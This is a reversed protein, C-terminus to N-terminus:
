EVHRVQRVQLQQGTLHNRLQPLRAGGEASEALDECRRGPQPTAACPDVALRSEPSFPM